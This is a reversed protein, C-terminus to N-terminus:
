DETLLQNAGAAALSALSGIVVAGVPGGVAFGLATAARRFAFATGSAAAGTLATKGYRKLDDSM